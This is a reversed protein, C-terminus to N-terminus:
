TFGQLQYLVKKAGYIKALQEVTKGGNDKLSPSIGGVKLLISFCQSSNYVAAIM